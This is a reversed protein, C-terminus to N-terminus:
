SVASTETVETESIEAPRQSVILDAFNETQYIIVKGLRILELLALFTTVVMVKTCQGSRFLDHFSIGGKALILQRSIQRMKERVTVEERPIEDFEEEQTAKILVEQLANLLETLSIGKLPNTEAFMTIYAEVDVPRTFTLEQSNERERLMAAITKFRKYEMLRAVLEDRPDVEPEQSEELKPPKPLLMRSKIQVLTAAMVLFESAVELDLAQLTAIYALYQETIKAIPIDYIDVKEQEILHFLLDFPGEFAELKVQYGM